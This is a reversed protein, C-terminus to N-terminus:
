NDFVFALVMPRRKTKRFFFNSLARRIDNKIIAYDTQKEPNANLTDLIFQKAEKVLADEGTYVLGRSIIEPGSTIEGTKNM